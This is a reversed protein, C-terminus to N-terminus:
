CFFLVFPSVHMEVFQYKPSIIVDFHCSFIWLLCYYSHYMPLSNKKMCSSWYNILYNFFRFIQWKHWMLVYCLNSHTTSYAILIVNFILPDFSHCSNSTVLLFDVRICLTISFNISLPFRLKFTGWVM